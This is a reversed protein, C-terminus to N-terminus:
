KPISGIAMIAEPQAMFQRPVQKAALDAHDAADIVIPDAAATLKQDTSAPGPWPKGALHEWDM